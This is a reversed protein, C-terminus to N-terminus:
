SHLWGVSCYIVWGPLTLPQPSAPMHNQSTISCLTQFVFLDVNWRCRIPFSWIPRKRKLGSIVMQRLNMLWGCSSWSEGGVALPVGFDIADVLCEWYLWFLKTARYGPSAWKWLQRSIKSGGRGRGQCWGEVPEELQVNGDWLCRPWLVGFLRWQETNQWYARNKRRLM